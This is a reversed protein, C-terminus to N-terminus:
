TAVRAASGRAPAGDGLNALVALAQEELGFPDPGMPPRCRGVQHGLVRMMAKAPVPNPAEDTGEYDAASEILRANATRAGEVDGARHAAVMEQYLRGAWHAAVSVVGVAGVALSPLTLKDEGCYVEFGAPAEAVLAATASLDGAADKVAVVNAVDEALRLMTAVTAKRGTRVPIDYIMLPLETAAAAARLHVDIGAQAPRNYYPVVVLVGAAGAAAAEGTLQATHATDNTGTGLVVPVTVAESVARCLDLKEADSLTPGEGTTGALVLGDSGNATLWRALSVAADLDVALDDDFPTVMATLVAGFRAM